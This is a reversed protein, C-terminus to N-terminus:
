SPLDFEGNRVGDLFATWETSNFRLIPGHRDKSDRIAAQGDIYAVQVCGTSNCYTSVRWPARDLDRALRSPEPM